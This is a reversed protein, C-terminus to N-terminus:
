NGKKKRLRDMERRIKTEMRRKAVVPDSNKQKRYRKDQKAKRRAAMAQKTTSM